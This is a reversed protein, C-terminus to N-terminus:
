GWRTAHWHKKGRKLLITGDHLLDDMTLARDAPVREGNVAVAGNGLFERAERKSSALSTEPLVDVLRAGDGELHAKDHTTAPVDAFVEALM